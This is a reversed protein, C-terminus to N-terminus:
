KNLTRFLLMNYNTPSGAIVWRLPSTNSSETVLSAAPATDLVM